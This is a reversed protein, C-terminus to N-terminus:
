RTWYTLDGIDVATYDYQLERAAHEWDICTHPWQADSKVAGIDEALEQAYQTFYSDRILTVPYWNGRWQEDGGLSESEQLIAKLQQYEEADEHVTQKSWEIFASDEPNDTETDDAEIKQQENFAALLDGEINEFREIIDRIDIIDATLDLKTDQM